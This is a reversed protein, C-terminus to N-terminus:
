LDARKQKLEASPVVLKFLQTRFRGLTAAQDPHITVEQDKGASEFQELALMVARGADLVRGSEFAEISEVLIQVVGRVSGPVKQERFGYVAEEYQRVVSSAPKMFANMKKQQQYLDTIPGLLQTVTTILNIADM